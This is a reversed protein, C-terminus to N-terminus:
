TRRGRGRLSTSDEFEPGTTDRQSSSLKFKKEKKRKRWSEGGRLPEPTQNRLERRPYTRRLPVVSVQTSWVSYRHRNSISPVTVSVWNSVHSLSDSKLRGKTRETLEVVILEGIKVNLKVRLLISLSFYHFNLILPSNWKERIKTLEEAWSTIPGIVDYFFLLM